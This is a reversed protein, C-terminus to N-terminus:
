LIGDVKIDTKEYPLNKLIQFPYAHGLKLADHRLQTLFRDYCGKGYGLRNGNKDFALGPILIFDIELPNIKCCIETNPEWIGLPSKKLYKKITEDISYNFNKIPIEFPHIHFNSDTFPLVLRKGEKICEEILLKTPAENRYDMYMMIVKSSQFTKLHILRKLSTKEYENIFDKTILNRELLVQKRLINKDM